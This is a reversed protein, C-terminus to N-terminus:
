GIVFLVVFFVVFVLVFILIVIFKLSGNGVWVLGYVVGVVGFGGDGLVGKLREMYVDVVVGLVLLGIEDEQEIIIEIIM